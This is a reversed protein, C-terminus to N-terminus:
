WALDDGDTVVRGDRLTLVRDATQAVTRSHTVMLVSQDLADAMDRFLAAITDGTTSDLNGTHEDALVLAPEHVMARAIAVRQQEGGSLQDPFADARDPLGIRELMNQARALCEDVPVRNLQLPLQINEIASLTDILNFTQYVFGINRRRFLTRDRDPLDSLAVGDIEIQGRDLQDIGAILNLLTSKGSGSRGLLAVREGRAISLDVGRLIPSQRAHSKAVGRVDVHSSM